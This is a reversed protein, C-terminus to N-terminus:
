RQRSWRPVIAYFQEAIQDAPLYITLPHEIGLLEVGTGDATYGQVEFLVGDHRQLVDGRQPRYDYPLQRAGEPPHFDDQFLQELERAIGVTRELDLTLVDRSGFEYREPGRGPLELVLVCDALWDGRVTESREPTEDRLPESLRAVYADLVGPALERLWMADEEPAAARSQRLRLTGNAFLTLQSRLVSSECTWDLRELTRSRSVLPPEADDRADLLDREPEVIGDPTVEFAPVVDPDQARLPYAASAALLVACASSGARSM